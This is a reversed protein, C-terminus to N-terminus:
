HKFTVSLGEMVNQLRPQVITIFSKQGNNVSKQSLSSHKDRALNELGTLTQLYPNLRGYHLM